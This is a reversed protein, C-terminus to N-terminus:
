CLVAPVSWARRLVSRMWHSSQEPRARVAFSEAQPISALLELNEDALLPQVRMCTLRLIWAIM